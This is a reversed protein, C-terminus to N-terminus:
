VAGDTAKRKWTKYSNIELLTEVHEVNGFNLEEDRANGISNRWLLAGM